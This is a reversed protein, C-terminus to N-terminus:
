RLVKVSLILEEKKTKMMVSGREDTNLAQAIMLSLKTGPGVQDEGMIGRVLNDAVASEKLSQAFAPSMLVHLEIMGTPVVTVKKNKM